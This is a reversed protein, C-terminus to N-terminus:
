LTPSELPYDQLVPVLANKFVPDVFFMYPLPALGAGAAVANAVGALSRYRLVIRAPVESNGTPAKILPM